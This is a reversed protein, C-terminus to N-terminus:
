LEQNRKRRAALKKVERWCIRCQRSFYTKYQATRKNWRRERTIRLNQKYNHGSPCARKRRKFHRGGSVNM